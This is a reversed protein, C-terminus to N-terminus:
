LARLEEIVPGWTDADDVGVFFQLRDVVGGFRERVIGPVDRPEGVIAFEDLIDDDILDGMAEWEGRKSLTNLETQVEGWGHHDLM